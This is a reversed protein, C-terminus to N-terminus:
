LIIRLIFSRNSISFDYQGNLQQVYYVISKVGIGHGNKGSTPIGNVFRPIRVIPNEMKLLLHNGKESITLNAWKKETDMEELAHM